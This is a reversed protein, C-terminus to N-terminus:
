EINGCSVIRNLATTAQHVDVYTSGKLAKLTGPIATTSLVTAGSSVSNQVPNLSELIAGPQLCRGKHIHTPQIANSPVNTLTLAVVLATPTSETFVVTGSENSASKPDLGISYSTGGCATLALLFTLLLATRNM